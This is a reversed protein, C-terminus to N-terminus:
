PRTLPGPAAAAVPDRRGDLAEGEPVALTDLRGEPKVRPLPDPDVVDDVPRASSPPVYSRPRRQVGRGQTGIEAPQYTVASVTAPERTARHILWGIGAAILMVPIPNRRIVEIVGDYASAYQSRRMQGLADDVIGSLSLKEQIRDITHDLRARSEEVDRELETLSRAM